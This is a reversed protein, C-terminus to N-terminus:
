KVEIEITKSLDPGYSRHKGDAFQLTLTHRGPPLEVEAETQGKGFHLHHADAPVVAGAPIAKGDIILHHHGTGPTVQGAPQVTMGHVGMRVKVPSSVTAGDAPSLFVVDAATAAVPALLGACLAVATLKPIKM